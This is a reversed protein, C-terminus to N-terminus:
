KMQSGGPDYQLIVRDDIADTPQYRASTKIPLIRMPTKLFNVLRTEKKSLLLCQLTDIPECTHSNQRTCYLMDGINAFELGDSKDMRTSNTTVLSSNAIPLIKSTGSNMNVISDQNTYESTVLHTTTKTDKTISRPTTFVMGKSNAQRSISRLKSSVTRIKPAYIDLKQLIRIAKADNLTSLENTDQRHKSRRIMRLKTVVQNEEDDDTDAVNTEDVVKNFQDILAINIPRISHNESKQKSFTTQKFIEFYVPQKTLTTTIETRADKSITSSISCQKLYDTTESSKSNTPRNESPKMTSESINQNYISQVSKAISPKQQDFSKFSPTKDYVKMFISTQNSTKIDKHIYGRAAQVESPITADSKKLRCATQPQYAQLNDKLAVPKKMGTAVISPIAPPKSPVNTSSRKTTIKNKNDNRAMPTTLITTTLNIPRNAMSRSQMIPEQTLQIKG